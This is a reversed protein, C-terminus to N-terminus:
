PRPAREVDKPTIVCPLSKAEAVEGCRKMWDRPSRPMATFWIARGIARVFREGAYFQLDLSKRRCAATARNDRKVKFPITSGRGTGVIRFYLRHVLGCDCCRMKYGKRIPQVWDGEKPVEYRV